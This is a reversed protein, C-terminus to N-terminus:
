DFNLMRFTERIIIKINETMQDLSCSIPSLVTDLGSIPHSIFDLRLLIKDATTKEGALQAFLECAEKEDNGIFLRGTEIYGKEGYMNIVLHYETEKQM